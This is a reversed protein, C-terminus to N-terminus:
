RKYWIRTGSPSKKEEDGLELSMNDNLFQLYEDRKKRASLLDPGNLDGLGEHKVFNEVFFSGNSM